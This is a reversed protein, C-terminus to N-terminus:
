KNFVEIVLMSSNDEIKCSMGHLGPPLGALMCISPSIERGNSKIYYYIEEALNNAEESAISCISVPVSPYKELCSDVKKRYEGDLHRSDDPNVIWSGTNQVLTSDYFNSNKVINVNREDNFIFHFYFKDLGLYGLVVIILSAIIKLWFRFNSNKM